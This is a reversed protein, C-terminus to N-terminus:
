KTCYITYKTCYIHYIEYLNDLVAKFYITYKTCYILINQVSQRTCSQFMHYIQHLIDTYKM